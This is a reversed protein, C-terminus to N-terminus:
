ESNLYRFVEEADAAEVTDAIMELAIFSKRSTIFWHEKASLPRGLKKTATGIISEHFVVVGDRLDPSFWRILKSWM